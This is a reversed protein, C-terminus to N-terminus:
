MILLCIQEIQEKALLYATYGTTNQRARDAGSALLLQVNRLNLNAAADMLPTTGDAREANVDAGSNLLMAIVTINDLPYSVARFLATELDGKTFRNSALLQKASLMDAVAVASHLPLKDPDYRSIGPSESRVGDDVIWEDDNLFVWRAM